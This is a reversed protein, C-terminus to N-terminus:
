SNHIYNYKVPPSSSGVAATIEIVIATVNKMVASTVYM